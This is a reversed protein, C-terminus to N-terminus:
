REDKFLEFWESVSNRRLAEADYASQMIDYTEAQPKGLKVSCKTNM